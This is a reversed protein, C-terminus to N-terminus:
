CFVRDWCCSPRQTVSLLCLGRGLSTGQGRIEGPHHDGGRGGSGFQGVSVGWRLETVRWPPLIAARNQPAPHPGARLLSLNGGCEPVRHLSMDGRPCLLEEGM